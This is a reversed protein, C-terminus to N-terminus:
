VGQLDPDGWATKPPTWKSPTRTSSDAANASGALWISAAVMLALTAFGLLRNRM